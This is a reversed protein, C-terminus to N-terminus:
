SFYVKPDLGVAIMQSSLDEVLYKYKNQLNAHETTFSKNAEPCLDYLKPFFLYDVEPNRTKYPIPRYARPLASQNVFSMNLGQWPPRGYISDSRLTYDEGTGM